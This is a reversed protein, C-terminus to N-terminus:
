VNTVGRALLIKEAAQAGTLGSLARVSSYKKYQSSVLGQVILSVIFLVILIILYKWDYSYSSYHPSAYYM